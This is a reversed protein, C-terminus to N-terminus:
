SCETGPLRPHSADKFSCNVCQSREVTQVTFLESVLLARLVVSSELPSRLCRKGRVSMLTSNLPPSSGLAQFPSPFSPADHPYFHNSEALMRPPTLYLANSVPGCPHRQQGVGVMESRQEKNQCNKTKPTEFLYFLFSFFSLFSFLVGEGGNQKTRWTGTIKEGKETASQCTKKPLSLHISLAFLHPDEYM